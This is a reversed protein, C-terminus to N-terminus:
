SSTTSSIPVRQDVLAAERAARRRLTSGMRGFAEDAYAGDREVWHLFLHASWANPNPTMRGHRRTIGQYLVADGPRMPISAYGEGPGFDGVLREAFPTAESGIDLPWAADGESALMLSLSHECAERDNHPRCIDDRNYIRFYCHTPLLAAGALEQLAPTLGWHFTSMPAYNAGHLELANRNLLKNSRNLAPKVAGARIDGMFQEFLRVCLDGSVFGNLAAYGAKRYDEAGTM